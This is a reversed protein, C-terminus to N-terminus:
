SMRARLKKVLSWVRANNKISAAAANRIRYAAVQARGKLTFGAMSDYLPEAVDCWDRKYPEDGIGFSYVRIGEECSQAIDEFFLFEGPSASVLDDEAIAGFEVTLDGMWYSKGILARIIGGVELAKLEFTRPTKGAAEGFLAHFFAQVGEDAFVDHIGTRAFREAKLAFFRDLMARIQDPSSATVIRHGGAEEYRRGHQRHKKRKRKPNSRELVGEFGCGLSASLIPNPNPATTLNLLPNNLGGLSQLQRSLLLADLDPRAARIARMLLRIDEPGVAARRSLIPFNGNAHTGGPFRAFRVAGSKIVELPLLLAAAEGDYLAAVFCDGNVHAQWNRVFPASQPLGAVFGEPMPDLPGLTTNVDSLIRPSLRM